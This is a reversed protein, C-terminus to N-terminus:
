YASCAFPSAQFQVTMTMTCFLSQCFRILAIEHLSLIAYDSHFTGHQMHLKPAAASKPEAHWSDAHMPIVDIDLLCAQALL